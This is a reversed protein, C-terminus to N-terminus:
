TRESVCASDAVGHKLSQRAAFERMQFGSTVLRSERDSVSAV